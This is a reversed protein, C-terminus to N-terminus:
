SGGTYETRYLDLRRHERLPFQARIREIDRLDLDVLQVTQATGADCLIDGWPSAALSHGWPIYRLEPNYAPQVGIVFAQLEIARMRVLMEWHAKGTAQSFAAPVFLLRIDWDSMLQTLPTFRIDYCVIVSARGWPTEFHGISSGPTITESEKVSPGGPPTCDFLHIKDHHYVVSGDPGIVYVRNFLKGSDAPWPMSGTVIHIGHSSAKERMSDLAKLSLSAASRMVKPEYPTFFMETFVVMQAGSRAAQDVMALAGTLNEDFDYTIFNQCMGITLHDAMTLEGVDM